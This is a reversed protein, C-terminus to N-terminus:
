TEVSNEKNYLIQEIVIYIPKPKGIEMRDADGFIGTHGSETYV